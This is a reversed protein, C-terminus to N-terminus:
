NPLWFGGFPYQGSQRSQPVVVMDRNRVIGFPMM